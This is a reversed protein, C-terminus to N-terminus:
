WTPRRIHNNHDANRPGAKPGPRTQHPARAGGLSGGHRLAPVASRERDDLQGIEVAPLLEEQRAQELPRDGLHVLEHRVDDDDRAIERRVPELVFVRQRPAVDVRDLALREDDDRAVVVRAVDAVDVELLEEAAPVGHKPDATHRDDRDVRALRVEVVTLDAAPAVAPDLLLECLRRIEADEHEVVMQKRNRARSPLPVDDVIRAVRELAQLTGTDVEHEGPVLM